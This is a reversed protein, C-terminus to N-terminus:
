LREHGYTTVLLKQRSLLDPDGPMVRLGAAIAEGAANVDDSESTMDLVLWVAKMVAIVIRTTSGDLDAWLYSTGAFPMDRVLRLANVLGPVTPDELAAHLLDVDTVVLSSLPLSDSHTSPSWDVDVTSPALQRMARRMDSVITSFTSGAVDIDWMSTRAASRTSRERNLSMWALLEMSKKKGFRARNGHRDELVPEGILRVILVWDARNVAPTPYSSESVEEVADLLRNVRDPLDISDSPLAKEPSNKQSQMILESLVANEEDDLRHPEGRHFQSVQRRRTELIRRLVSVAVAPAVLDSVPVTVAPSPIFPAGAAVAVASGAGLLSAWKRPAATKHRHRMRECLSWTALCLGLILVSCGVALRLQDTGLNVSM